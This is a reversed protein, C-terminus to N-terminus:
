KNARYTQLTQAAKQDGQSQAEQLANNITVLGAASVNAQERNLGPLASVKQMDALAKTYDKGNLDALLATVAETAPPKAKAFAKQLAPPLQEMTLPPPPGDPKGCGCLAVMLLAASLLVSPAFRSLRVRGAIHPHNM